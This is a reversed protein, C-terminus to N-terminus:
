MSFVSVVMVGTSAASVMCFRCYARIVFAQLSVLFVSAMGGIISLAILVGAAAPLWVTTLLGVLCISYFLAGLVSLKIRGIQAYKSKLVINCKGGVYCVSSSAQKSRKTLIISVALGLICSILMSIHTWSIIGRDVLSNAVALGISTVLFMYDLRKSGAATMRVGFLRNAMHMLYDSQQDLSGWRRELKSFVCGNFIWTHVRHLIAMVLVIWLPLLLGVLVAFVIILFHTWFLIESVLQRRM